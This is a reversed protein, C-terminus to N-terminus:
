RVAEFDNRKLAFQQHWRRAEAVFEEFLLRSFADEKYTREPHWQVGLIWQEPDTGEVAEIVDDQVSTASLRLGDGINALAQHHSSNVWLEHSGSEAKQAVKALLTGAEIKVKHARAEHVIEHQEAHELHQILKGTRWVNLSQIGYCIGFVPKRMNFADQLLLEDANDRPIDAAATHPDRPEDYKEPDVDAPSGPLLVGDCSKLKQALEGPTLDLSLPVAEGGTAEVAGIYDPLRKDTYARSSHPEPIAIRPKTFM